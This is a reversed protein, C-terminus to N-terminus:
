LELVQLNLGYIQNKTDHDSQNSSILFIIMFIEMEQTQTNLYSNLFQTSYKIM